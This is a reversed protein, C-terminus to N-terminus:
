GFMRQQGRKKDKTASANGARHKGDHRNHCAQCLFKLNSREVPLVKGTTEYGDNNEPHHDQHSVTCIIRIVKWGDHVCGVDVGMATFSGNPNRVGTAHNPVGCEECKDRARHQVFTRIARWVKRAPYRGRNEATIPM